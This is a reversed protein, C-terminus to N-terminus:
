PSGCRTPTPADPLSHAAEEISSAHAAAHLLVALMSEQSYRAHAARQLTLIDRLAFVAQQWVETARIGRRQLNRQTARTSIGDTRRPHSAM